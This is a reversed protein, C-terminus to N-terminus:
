KRVTCSDLKVCHRNGAGARDYEAGVLRSSPGEALYLMQVPTLFSSSVAKSTHSMGHLGQGEIDEHGRISAGSSTEEDGASSGPPVM